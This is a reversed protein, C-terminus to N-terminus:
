KSKYLSAVRGRQGDIKDVKGAEAFTKKVYTAAYPIPIGNLEAFFKITFPQIDPIQLNEMIDKYNKREKKDDNVVLALPVDGPKRNKLEAIKQQLEEVKKDLSEPTEEIIKESKVPKISLDSLRAPSHGSVVISNGCNKGTITVGGDSVREIRVRQMDVVDTIDVISGVRYLNINRVENDM